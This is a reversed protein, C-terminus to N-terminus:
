VGDVVAGGEGQHLGTVGVSSGARAPAFGAVIWQRGYLGM